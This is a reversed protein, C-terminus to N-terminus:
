LGTPPTATAEVSRVRDAILKMMKPGAGEPIPDGYVRPSGYALDYRATSLPPNKGNGKRTVWITIGSGLRELDVALQPKQEPSQNVIMRTVTWEDLREGVRLDGLLALPEGTPTPVPVASPLPASASAEGPGNGSPAPRKSSGSAFHFLLAAGAM